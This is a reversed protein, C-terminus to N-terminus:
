QFWFGTRPRRASPIYFCSSCESISLYTQKRVPTRCGEGGGNLGREVQSNTTMCIKFTLDIRDPYIKIKDVFTEIVKRKLKDDNSLLDQKSKLIYREVKEEDLWDYSKFQLRSAKEELALKEEKLTSMKSKVTNSDLTGDAVADILKDIKSDTAALKKEVEILENQNETNHNKAYELIQQSIDKISESSFVNKLLEKIVFEEIVSQRIAKNKCVTTSSRKTCAYIPYKKGGRGGRYSNGVYSSECEGCFIYGTLLYFNKGNTRPGRKKSKLREQVKDFLDEEIIAPLANPVRIIEDENKFSHNNRKGSSKSTRKNFVYTGKYKENGLLDCISNKSFYNGIKTKHGAENLVRIIDVYGHDLAYMNFIKRVIIAESENIVYTKDPAIEYGLPAIGGNHKAQYATEKMGKMVERSLNISFYEAMGELLSEMIISEPSDDLNELVSMVRVDSKKLTKKYFASDYRNRSFRDLKHVIVANFIGLESDKIMQLFMPRNDTTASKAKDTYTKVIQINNKSAFQEIARIQAEISEERQNDSSYRAYIAAKLM